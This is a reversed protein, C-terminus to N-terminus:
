VKSVLVVGKAGEYFESYVERYLIVWNKLSVVVVVVVVM